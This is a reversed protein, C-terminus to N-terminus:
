VAVSDLLSEYSPIEHRFEGGSQMHVDLYQIPVRTNVIAKTGYAEGAIVRVTVNDREVTPIKEKPVDQYAPDIWKDKAPLNV